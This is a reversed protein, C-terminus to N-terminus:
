NRLEMKRIIVRYLDDETDEIKEVEVVLGEKERLEEIKRKTAKVWDGYFEDDENSEFPELRAEGRPKLVRVIEDYSRNLDQEMTLNGFHEKDRGPMASNCVILEFANDEFPLNQSLARTTRKEIEKEVEDPWIVEKIKKDIYDEANGELSYVESSVGHKMCFSAFMRNGAGIDLIKKNKLFQETLGLKQLYNEYMSNEELEAYEKWTLGKAEVDNKLFDQFEKEQRKFFDDVSCGIHPQKKPDAGTKKEYLEDAKLISDAIVQFVIPKEPDSNDRYTYINKPKEPSLGMEFKKEM